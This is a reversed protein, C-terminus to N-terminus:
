WRTCTSRRRDAGPLGVQLVTGGTRVLAIAHDLQGPAGSAEISSTPVAPRSRRACRPRRDDRASRSSATPASGRPGSSGPAPSTSSPSTPTPRALRLGALVFSGIAGAGILVVRDGAAVGSAAPPTCASPWRSPWAPTTSPCGTPCPACPASPRRRGARGHRRRHEPGLTYYRRCLNTRGERCRDCEGCWVGAGRPSSTAWPSAAARRRGRAGRRRVRPRAGDPRRPRHRPAARDVPFTKPGSPGSPPTPAACAAACCGCCCRARGRARARPRGRHPRRPRRPLGRRADTRGSARRTM